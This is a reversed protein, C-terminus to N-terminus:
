PTGGYTSVTDLLWVFWVGVILLLSLGVTLTKRM